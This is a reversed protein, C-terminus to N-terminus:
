ALEARPPRIPSRRQYERRFREFTREVQTVQRFEGPRPKDAAPDRSSAQCYLNFSLILGTRQWALKEEPLVALYTGENVLDRIVTLYQLEMTASNWGDAAKVAHMKEVFTILADLEAKGARREAREQATAGSPDVAAAAALRKCADLTSEYLGDNPGVLMGVVMLMSLM